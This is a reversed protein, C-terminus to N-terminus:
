AGAFDFKFAKGGDVPKRNLKTHALLVPLVLGVTGTDQRAHTLEGVAGCVHWLHHWEVGVIDSLVMESEWDTGHLRNIHYSVRKSLGLLLNYFVAIVDRLRKGDSVILSIISNRDVAFNM